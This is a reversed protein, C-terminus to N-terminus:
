QKKRIAPRAAVKEGSEGTRRQQPTLRAWLCDQREVAYGSRNWWGRAGGKWPKDVASGTCIRIYGAKKTGPAGPDQKM